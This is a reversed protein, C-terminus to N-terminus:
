KAKCKPWKLKSETVHDWSIKQLQAYLRQQSANMEWKLHSSQITRQKGELSDSKNRSSERTIQAASSPQNTNSTVAVLLWQTRFGPLFRPRCSARSLVFPSHWESWHIRRCTLLGLHGHVSNHGINKVSISLQLYLFYMVCSCYYLASFFFTSGLGRVTHVLTMLTLKLTCVQAKSQM